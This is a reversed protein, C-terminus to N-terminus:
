YRVEIQKDRSKEGKVIALASKKVGLFKAMIEVVSRNAEGDIAPKHTYVKYEGEGAKIVKEQSSRPQVRIKLITIM